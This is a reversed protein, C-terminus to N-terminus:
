HSKKPTYMLLYVNKLTRYLRPYKRKFRTKWQEPNSLPYDLALNYATTDVVYTKLKDRLYMEAQKMKAFRSRNMRCSFPVRYFSTIEEVLWFRVKLAMRIWFDWDELLEMNEDFRNGALAYRDFLVSQIPLYNRYLLELLNFDQHFVVCSRKTRFSGDARVLRSPVENALSYAVHANSQCIAQYLTAIHNPYYGDDDDLFAIYKGQAQDLAVNAAVSRGFDGHLHFYRIDPIDQFSKIVTESSHIGDEVVVTEINPYNQEKISRLATHLVFPRNKTRVIVSILPLRNADPQAMNSVCTKMSASFRIHM